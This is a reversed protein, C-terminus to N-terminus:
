PHSAETSVQLYEELGYTGLERGTGSMKFGGFPAGNDAYIYQNCWVTGADLAATVRMAQAHDATFVGAGLGYPTDNALTVAATESSFRSIVLVPGFIQAFTLPVMVVCRVPVPTRGCTTSDTPGHLCRFSSSVHHHRIRM